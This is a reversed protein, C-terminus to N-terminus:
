WHKPDQSGASEWERDNCDQNRLIGRLNSDANWFAPSKTRNLPRFKGVEPPLLVKQATMWRYRTLSAAGVLLNLAVDGGLSKRTKGFLVGRGM